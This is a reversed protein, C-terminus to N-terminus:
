QRRERGDTPRRHLVPAVFHWTLLGLFGVLPVALWPALALLGWVQASFTDGPVGNGLALTEAGLFVVVIAIWAVRPVRPARM